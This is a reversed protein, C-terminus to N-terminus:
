LIHTSLVSLIRISPPPQVDVSPSLLIVVLKWAAIICFSLLSLFTSVCLGRSDPPLLFPLPSIFRPPRVTIVSRAIRTILSPRGTHGTNVM